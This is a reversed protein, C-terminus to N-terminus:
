YNVGRRNREWLDLSHEERGLREWGDITGGVLGEAFGRWGIDGKYDKEVLTRTRLM